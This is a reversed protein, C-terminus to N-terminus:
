ASASSVDGAEVVAAVGVAAIGVAAIGVLDIELAAIAMAANGMTDIGVANRATEFATDIVVAIPAVLEDSAGRRMPDQWGEPGSTAVRDHAASSPKTIVHGAASVAAANAGIKAGASRM